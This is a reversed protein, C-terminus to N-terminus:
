EPWAWWVLAQTALAADGWGREIAAVRQAVIHEWQSLQNRVELKVAAEADPACQAM